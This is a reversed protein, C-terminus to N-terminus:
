VGQPPILVATACSHHQSHGRLPLIGEPGQVVCFVAHCRNGPVPVMLQQRDVDHYLAALTPLSPFIFVLIGKM